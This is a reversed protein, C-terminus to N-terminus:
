ERRNIYEDLRNLFEYVTVNAPRMETVIDDNINVDLEDELAMIFEVYTLSDNIYADLTEDENVEVVNSTYAQGTKFLVDKVISIEKDTM